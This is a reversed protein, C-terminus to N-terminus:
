AAVNPIVLHIAAFTPANVRPVRGILYCDGIVRDEIVVVAAYQDAIPIVVTREWSRDHIVVGDDTVVDDIAVPQIWCGRTIADLLVSQSARM